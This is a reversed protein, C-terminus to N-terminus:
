NVVSRLAKRFQIGGSVPAVGPQPHSNSKSSEEEGASETKYGSRCPHRLNTTQLLLTFHGFLHEAGSRTLTVEVAEEGESRLRFGSRCADSKRAPVNGRFGLWAHCSEPRRGQLFM